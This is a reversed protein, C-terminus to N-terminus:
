NITPMLITTKGIYLQIGLGFKNIYKDHLCRFQITIMFCTYTYLQQQIFNNICFNGLLELQIGACHETRM